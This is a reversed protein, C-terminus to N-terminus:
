KILLRSELIKGKNTLRVLYLGEKLHNLSLHVQNSQLTMKWQKVVAGNMDIIEIAIKRNTLFDLDITFWNESPNPFIKFDNIDNLDALPTITPDKVAYKITGGPINVEFYTIHPIGESDIDMSTQQGLIINSDTEDIVFESLWNNGEKFAYKIVKKDGYSIFFKDDAEVYKLSVIHRAGSFGLEVNNLNDITNIQWQGNELFAYKVSGTGNGLDQYYAIHYKGFKDIVMDPFRGVDGDRDVTSHIWLGSVKTAYKLDLQTDDFYAISPTGIGDIVISTGNAYMLSVSAISEVAWSVTRTAYEVGIGSFGSPDVSSVHITNDSDILMVGDWGDHGSDSVREITWQNSSRFAHNLDEEDHNHYIIHPENNNDIAIDLPGYFYGTHINTIDFGSGNFEAHKIFGSLAELMYAIHPTGNTDIELSPKIGDDVEFVDWKQAKVNNSLFLWLFILVLYDFKM